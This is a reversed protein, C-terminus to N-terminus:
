NYSVKKTNVECVICKKECYGAIPLGSYNGNRCANLVNSRQFRAHSPIITKNTQNM